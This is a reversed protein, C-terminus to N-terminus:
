YNRSRLLTFNSNSVLYLTLMGYMLGVAWTPSYHDTGSNEKTIRNKSRFWWCRQWELWSSPLHTTTTTTLNGQFNANRLHSFFVGTGLQICRVLKLRLFFFAGFHLFKPSQKSVFFYLVNLYELRDLPKTCDSMQCSWKLCVRMLAIKSWVEDIFYPDGLFGFTM